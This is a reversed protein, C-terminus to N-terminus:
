AARGGLVSYFVWMLFIDRLMELSADAVSLKSGEIDVWDVAVEAVPLNFRKRALFLWECDFSWGFFWQRPFILKAAPRSILKFGCQTDRIGGPVFFSNIAGFVGSVFGRIGTRRMGPKGMLHARSGYVLGGGRGEEDVAVLKKLSRELNEVQDFRTAGDADAMLLYKGRTRLMGKRIAGGKGNNRALKLVRVKDTGHAASYSLAKKFTGDTSGDDVVVIEWKFTSDKRQREDLYEVAEDVMRGLRKEENYAPIVVSLEVSAEQSTVIPFPKRKSKDM